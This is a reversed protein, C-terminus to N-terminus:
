SPPPTQTGGGRIPHNFLAASSSSSNFVRTTTMQNIGNQAWLDDTVKMIEVKKAEAVSDYLSDVLSDGVQM